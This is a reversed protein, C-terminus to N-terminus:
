IASAHINVALTSESFASFGAFCRLQAAMAVMSTLAFTYNAKILM